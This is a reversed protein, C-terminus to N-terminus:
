PVYPPVARACEVFNQSRCGAARHNQLAGLVRTDLQDWLFMAVRFHNRANRIDPPTIGPLRYEGSTIAEMACGNAFTRVTSAAYGDLNLLSNATPRVKWPPLVKRVGLKTESAAAGCTSGANSYGGSEDTTKRKTEFRGENDAQHLAFRVVRLQM